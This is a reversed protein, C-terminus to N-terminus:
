FLCYTGVIQHVLHQNLVYRASKELIRPDKSTSRSYVPGMASSIIRLAIDYFSMRERGGTTFSKPPAMRWADVSQHFTHHCKVATKM